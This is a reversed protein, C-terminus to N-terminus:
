TQPGKCRKRKRPAAKCLGRPEQPEPGDNRREDYTPWISGSPRLEYGEIAMSDWARLLVNLSELSQDIFWQRSGDYESLWGVWHGSRGLYGAIIRNAEMWGMPGQQVLPDITFPWVANAVMGVAWEKFDPSTRLDAWIAYSSHFQPGCGSRWDGSDFWDDLVSEPVVPREQPVRLQQARPPLM